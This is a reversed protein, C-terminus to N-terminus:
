LAQDLTEFGHYPVKPWGIAGQAVWRCGVVGQAVLGRPLAREGIFAVREARM